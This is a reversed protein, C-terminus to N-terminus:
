GNRHSTDPPQDCFFVFNEAGDPTEYNEPAWRADASAWAPPAGGLCEGSDAFGPSAPDLSTSPGVKFHVPAFDCPLHTHPPPPDGLTPWPPRACAFDRRCFFLPARCSIPAVWALPNACTVLKLIM